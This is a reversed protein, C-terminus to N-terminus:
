LPGTFGSSSLGTSNWYTVFNKDTIVNYYSVNQKMREIQQMQTRTTREETIILAIPSVPTKKEYLSGISFYENITERSVMSLKVGAHARPSEVPIPFRHSRESLSVNGRNM